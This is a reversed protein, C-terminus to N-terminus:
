FDIETGLFGRADTTHLREHVGASGLRTSDTAPVLSATHTHTTLRLSDQLAKGCTAVVAQGM